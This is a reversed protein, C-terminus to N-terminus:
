KPLGTGLRIWTVLMGAVGSMLVLGVGLMQVQSAQCLWFQCSFGWSIFGLSLAVFILTFFHLLLIELIVLQLRTFVEQSYWSRLTEFVEVYANLVGSSSEVQM